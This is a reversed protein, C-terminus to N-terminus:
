GIAAQYLKIQNERGLQDTLDEWAAAAADLADQASKQGNYAQALETEALSYYQFIGPIRPEVAGNPHNYSNQTSDLYSQV